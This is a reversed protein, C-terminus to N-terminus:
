KAEKKQELYQKGEDNWKVALGLRDDAVITGLIPVEIESGLFHRELLERIVVSKRIGNDEAVKEIAQYLKTGIRVPALTKDLVEM